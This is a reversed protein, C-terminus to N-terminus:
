LGLSKMLAEINDLEQQSIETSKTPVTTKQDMAEFDWGGSGGFDLAAASVQVAGDANVMTKPCTLSLAIQLKEGNEKAWVYVKGDITAVYDEGFAEIIKQIVM